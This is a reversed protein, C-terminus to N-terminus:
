VPVNQLHVTEQFWLNSEIQPRIVGPWEGFYYMNERVDEVEFRNCKSFNHLIASSNKIVTLSLTYARNNLLNGPIITELQLLGKQADILPTGLNFVCVGDDTELVVNINLQGESICCWFECELKIPTNVSIYNSGCGPQPIIKVQKLKISENGPAAEPSDFESVYAEPKLSSIYSKIVEGAPGMEKLKGKQLWIAKECLNAV